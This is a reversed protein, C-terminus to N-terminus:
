SFLSLPVLFIKSNKRKVLNSIEWNALVAIKPQYVSIFSLLSRTIKPTKKVEIPVNKDRLVFDVEAKATTRWFALSKEKLTLFIHNEFLRGLEEESFEVKELLINRLGFDYFYVKPNKKLETVLNKHYPLLRKIIYTEEFINLIEKLEQFHLSTTQCIDQYNVVNGITVALYKLVQIAKDKYKIGYLKIIDKEVYTSFINKLLVKKKEPDKELVVRPYGGFILYEKLLKNLRNLWISEVVKPKEFSFRKKQYESFVQRDKAKLFEAFSFPFLEFFIARGVLFRGLHSIDLTSSGSVIFKAQPYSDFLLKLIKGGKKIYHFEDLLFIVKGKKALYFELYDKPKEEFKIQELEDEFNIFVVEEERYKKQLERGIKYLLTTKGSQRPGRIIIAERDKLFQFVQKEVERNIYNKPILSNFNM